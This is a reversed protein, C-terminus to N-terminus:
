ININEQVINDNVYYFNQNDINDQPYDFIWEAM